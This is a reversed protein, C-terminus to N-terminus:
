NGWGAFYSADKDFQDFFGDPWMDIIGDRDLIPSLVSESTDSRPRFFHLAVSDADIMASKVARRIGSLVHDSHTEVIVQIGAAAVQALFRGMMAQGAPHLHVEPNEVVIIGGPDTSLGATVIPLVQTIGFGVHRPRHFETAESLRIGMTILNTSPIRDLTLSFGPFFSRMHGITQHYRTSIEGPIRLPGSVHQDRGVFLVSVTHEGRSGVGGPRHHDQLSYVDLPGIREATLYTLTRIADLPAEMSTYADPPVLFRLNHPSDYTNTDMQVQTVVASLDRRDEAYFTWDLCHTDWTLGLGFSKHASLNDLVDGVTGLSLDTGNLILRTSWEHDVMTQHLLTLAQLVSSKGSANFGSLVTLPALPLKLLEFCKFSTMRLQRIM